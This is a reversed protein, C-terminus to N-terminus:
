SASNWNMVTLYLQARETLESTLLSNRSRSESASCRILGELLNLDQSVRALPWSEWRSAQSLDTRSTTLACGLTVQSFLSWNLSQRFWMLRHSFRSQNNTWLPTRVCQVAGGKTLHGQAINSLYSLMSSTVAGGKNPPGPHSASSSGTNPGAPLSRQARQESGRCTGGAISQSRSTSLGCM